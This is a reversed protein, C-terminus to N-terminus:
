KSQSEELSQPQDAVKDGPNVTLNQEKATPQKRAHWDVSVPQNIKTETQNAM